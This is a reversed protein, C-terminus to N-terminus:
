CSGDGKNQTPGVNVDKLSSYLFKISFNSGKLSLWLIDDEVERSITYGQLRRFFAKVWELEWDHIQRSFHSNWCGREWEQEWM